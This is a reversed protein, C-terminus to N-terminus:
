VGNRSVYEAKEPFDKIWTGEMSGGEKFRYVGKGNKLGQYFEGEFEGEETHLIGRGHWKNNLWGGEYFAGNDYDM